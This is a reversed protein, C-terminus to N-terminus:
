SLDMLSEHSALYHAVAFLVHIGITYLLKKAPRSFADVSQFTTVVRNYRQYYKHFHQSLMHFCTREVFDCVKTDNPQYSFLLSFLLIQYEIRGANKEIMM